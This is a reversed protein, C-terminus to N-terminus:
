PVIVGQTAAEVADIDAGPDSGDTAQLKYASGSALRYNGGTLNVFGVQALSAPFFNDVPYISATAAVIVNRRFVYGPAAYVDLAAKGEGVNSGFIGYQGKTTVNNRFVFNAAQPTAGDFVMTAGSADSNFTTNHEITVDAPGELIQYLRGHGTFVGVNINEFINHAIKIRSAPVVTYSEPAAAINIGGGANRLRNYRFTLDRMVSWPATGNQNVSKVVFAFGDQADAWHNEFINGEVLLRQAHKLEFLNKVTWVGKWSTPRFFHNHRIEIDSPTLNAIAPDAGGFMVIEGAGELYNNAIKYPGPGNWGCIAQSDFGLAHCESLYSDIVATSASNLAVCRSVNLTAHGHIYVRDLILNTPVQSLTTQLDGGDGLAVIGYNLTASSAVTIELALLRYHHAGAATQIAPESNPSVLKPLVSAYSPRMRVGEAPLNVDPAASRITIWCAGSKNPLTFPGVYTAGAALTIVDCPQAANIAAQLSGGAPVAITQGTPVVYRTDLTVRPLEPDNTSSAANVTVTATGSKGESTATITASGVAAATVLGTNSVTAAATNASSWGIVRNTLVNGSADKLTASLQVTQGVVIQSSAPTVTVSAVPAASVTISSTGSVGEVVATVTAAGVAVATVLGAATVTAVSANSTSWTPTRGSLVNGSADKPTATLQANGGVVIEASSPTVTVSAVPTASVTITASGTKGECTATVVAVGPTVATVLGTASVSAVGPSGSSWTVIRGTLLKGSASRLTDTLQVTQGGLLTVSTPAVIVTAVPPRQVKITSRGEKGSVTATITTVGVDMGVVDGNQSVAAVAPNSSSWTPPTGLLPFGFVNYAAVTLTSHAEIDIDLTDPRVIVTAVSTVATM